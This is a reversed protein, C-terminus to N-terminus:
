QIVGLQKMLGLADRVTHEEVIKDENKQITSQSM